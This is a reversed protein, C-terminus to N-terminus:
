RLDEGIADLGAALSRGVIILDLRVRSEGFLDSALGHPRSFVELVARLLPRVTESCLLHLLQAISRICKDLRPRRQSTNRPYTRVRKM